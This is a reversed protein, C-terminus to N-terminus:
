DLSSTSLELPVKKSPLLLHDIIQDRLIKSSYSGRICEVLLANAYFYDELSKIDERPLPINYGMHLYLMMLARLERAWSSWKEKSDDDHPYTDQLYFLEEALDEHALDKLLASMSQEQYSANKNEVENIQASFFKQVNNIDLTVTPMIQEDIAITGKKRDVNIESKLRPADALNGLPLEKELLQSVKQSKHKESVKTLAKVYGSMLLFGLKSQRSRPIVKENGESNKKLISALEQALTYGVETTYSTYLPLEQDVALYFARWSSSSVKHLTTVEDVWSLLGQLTESKVLDNAQKFICKLFEDADTLQGSIILFVEKWQRDLLHKNIINKLSINRNGVIHLATFYEQFVLHSFSYIEKTREILLGHSVEIEKLVIQRDINLTGPVVRPINEIYSGIVNDLERRQWFYKQPYQNFAEFAIKALLNAKHQTSLSLESISKRNIRRTADWRRLLVDVAEEILSNHNKPIEYNDEFVLCLLTLLLPNSALDSSASNAYLEKLFNEELRQESRDSFWKKTFLNIQKIDFDAIKVETFDEFIYETAGLRCTIVFQNRAYQKVFTNIAYYVRDSETSSVEDLGDLLILCRGQQLLDLVILNNSTCSIFEKSIVDILSSHEEQDTFAKLSIYVPVLKGIGDKILHLALNKVLTTKGAGPGGWVFLKHYQELANLASTEDNAITRKYYYAESPLTRSDANSNLKRGKIRKLVNIETYISSSTIPSAMTLVRMTGCKVTMYERYCDLWEGDSNFSIQNEQESSQQQRLSEQYSEIDLLVKCLYNLNKEQSKIPPDGNFFNRITKDSILDKSTDRKDQFTRNLEAILLSPSGGFKELYAQRLQALIRQHAIIAVM